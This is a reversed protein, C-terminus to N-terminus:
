RTGGGAGATASGSTADVLLVHRGRRQLHYGLALGSQGAGIILVDTHESSEM